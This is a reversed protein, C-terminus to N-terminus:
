AIATRPHLSDQTATTPTVSTKKQSKRATEAGYRGMRSGLLGIAGNRVGSDDFPSTVKRSPVSVRPRSMSERVMQPLGANIAPDPTVQTYTTGTISGYTFTQVGPIISGLTAFKGGTYTYYIVWEGTVLRGGANVWDILQQQGADPMNTGTWNFNAQLYVTQFGTLDATGDFSSYPLGITVTHGRSTLAAAAADDTMPDTSSLMYINAAGAGATMLASVCLSATVSTKM